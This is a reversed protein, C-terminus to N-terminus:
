YTIFGYGVLSLLFNLVVILGLLLFFGTWVTLVIPPATFKIMAWRGAAWLLLACIGIILVVFLNHILGAGSGGGGAHAVVLADAFLTNM